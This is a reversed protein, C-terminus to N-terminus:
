RLGILLVADIQTWSPAIAQDITIIITSVEQGITGIPITFARPCNDVPSPASQYIIPTDGFIDVVRVQTIYGPNFSEYIVLQTPIVPEAFLITIEENRAHPDLTAWASPADGCTTTNPPGVAQAASYSLTDRQSTATATLAWQSIEELNAAVLTPALENFGAEFTPGIPAIDTSFTQGLDAVTTAVAQGTALAGGIDTAVAQATGATDRVDQATSQVQALPGCVCAAAALSLIGVVMPLKRQSLTM